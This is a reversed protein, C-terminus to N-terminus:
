IGLKIRSKSESIVHQLNSLMGVPSKIRFVNAIIVAMRTVSLLGHVLALLTSIMVVDQLRHARRSKQLSVARFLRQPRPVSGTNFTINM